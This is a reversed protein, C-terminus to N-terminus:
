NMELWKLVNENIDLWTFCYEATNLLQWGNSCNRSIFAFKLANLAIKLWNWVYDMNAM